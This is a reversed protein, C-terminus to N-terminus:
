RGVKFDLDGVRFRRDTKIASDKAPGKDKVRMNRNGVITDLRLTHHTSKHLTLCRPVLVHLSCCIRKQTRHLYLIEICYRLFDECITTHDSNWFKSDWSFAPLSVEEIIISIHKSNILNITRCFLYMKGRKNERGFFYLVEITNRKREIGKILAIQYTKIIVMFARAIM